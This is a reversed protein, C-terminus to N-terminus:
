APVIELDPANKHEQSILKTTDYGREHCRDIIGSLIEQSIDPKRALITLHKYKPHGVVAYAYDDALEIVWYDSKFPWLEQHKLRANGSGRVVFLKSRNYKQQEEGKLKYTTFVAYYGDPHIVYTDMRQRWNETLFVPTSYLSFWKGAYAMIDLKRVPENDMNGGTKKCNLLHLNKRMFGAVYFLTKLLM